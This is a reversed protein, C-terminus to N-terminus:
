ESVQKSQEDLFHFGVGSNTQDRKYIILPIQFPKLDEKLTLNEKRLQKIEEKFSSNQNNLKIIEQELRSKENQLLKIEKTLNLLDEKIKTKKDKVTTIEENLSMTSNQLQHILDVHFLILKKINEFLEFDIENAEFHELFRKLNSDDLESLNIFKLLCHKSQDQILLIFLSTESPKIFNPNYFVSELTPVSLKNILQNQLKQFNKAVNTICKNYLNIQIKSFPLSLFWIIDNCDKFNFPVEFSCGVISFCEVLERNSYKDAQFSHGDLINFFSIFLEENNIDKFHYETISTDNSNKQLIAQSLCCSFAKNCKIKEDNVYITFDFLSKRITKSGKQFMKSSLEFFQNSSKSKLVIRCIAELYENELVYSIYKLALVNTKNVQIHKSTSFLLSLKEFAHILDKYNLIQYKKKKPLQIIFPLSSELLESYLKPSLLYIEEKTFKFIKNQIKILFTKNIEIELQGLGHFDAGHLEFSTPINSSSSSNLSSSM